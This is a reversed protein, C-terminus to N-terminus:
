TIGYRAPVNLPLPVRIFNEKETLSILCNLGRHSWLEQDDPCLTRHHTVQTDSRGLNITVKLSLLGSYQYGVAIPSSAKHSILWIM